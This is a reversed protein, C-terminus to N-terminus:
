SYDTNLLGTRLQQRLSGGATKCTSPHAMGRPDGWASPELRVAAAHCEAFTFATNQGLVSYHWVCTCVPLWTAPSRGQLFPDVQSVIQSDSFLGPMPFGVLYRQGVTSHSPLIFNYTIRKTDM